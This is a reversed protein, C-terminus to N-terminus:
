FNSCKRERRIESEATDRERSEWGRSERRAAGERGWMYAWWATYSQRFYCTLENKEKGMMLMTRHLFSKELANSKAFVSEEITTNCAKKKRRCFFHIWNIPRLFFLKVSGFFCCKESGRRNPVQVTTGSSEHVRVEETTFRSYLYPNMGSLVSSQGASCFYCPIALFRSPPSQM